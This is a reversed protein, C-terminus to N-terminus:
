AAAKAAAHERMVKARLHDRGQHNWLEPPVSVLWRRIIERGLKEVLEGAGIDGFDVPNAQGIHWLTALYQDTYATLHAEDTRIDFTITFNASGLAERIAPHPAPASM